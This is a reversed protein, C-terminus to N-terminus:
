LGGTDSGSFRARIYEVRLPGHIPCKWSDREVPIPLKYEDRDVLGFRRIWPHRIHLM